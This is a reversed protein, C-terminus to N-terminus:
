VCRVKTDNEGEGGIGYLMLHSNEGQRSMHDERDEYKISLAQTPIDNPTGMCVFMGDVDKESCESEFTVVGYPEGVIGSGWM